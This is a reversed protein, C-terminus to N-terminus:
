CTSHIFCTVTLGENVLRNYLGALRDSRVLYYDINQQRLYRFAEPSLLLKGEMGRSLIVVESDRSLHERLAGVTIGPQHRTGDQRWDWATVGRPTIICDKYTRSGRQDEVVVRGWELLTIRAM